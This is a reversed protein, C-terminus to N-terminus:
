KFMQTLQYLSDKPVKKKLNPEEINTSLAKLNNIITLNMSSQYEKAEEVLNRYTEPNAFHALVSKSPDVKTKSAEIEM